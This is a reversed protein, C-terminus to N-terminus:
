RQDFCIIMHSANWDTGNCSCTNSFTSARCALAILCCATMNIESIAMQRKTYTFSAAQWHKAQKNPVPFLCSIM